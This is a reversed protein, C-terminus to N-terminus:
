AMEKSFLFYKALRRTWMEPWHRGERVVKKQLKRARERFETLTKSEEELKVRTEHYQCVCLRLCAFLYALPCAKLLVGTVTCSNEHENLDYPTGVRKMAEKVSDM